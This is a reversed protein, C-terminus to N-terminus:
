ILRGRDPSFKQTLLKQFSFSISPKQPEEASDQINDLFVTKDNLKITCIHIFFTVIIIHIDVGILVGNVMKNDCNKITGNYSSKNQFDERGYVYNQLM